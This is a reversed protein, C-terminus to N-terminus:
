IEQETIEVVKAINPKMLKEIGEAVERLEEKSLSENLNKFEYGKYKKKEVDVIEMLKISKKM